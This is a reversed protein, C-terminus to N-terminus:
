QESKRQKEHTICATVCPRSRLARRHGGRGELPPFSRRISDVRRLASAELSWRTPTNRSNRLIGLSPTRRPTHARTKHQHVPRVMRSSNRRPFTRDVTRSSISHHRRHPCKRTVKNTTPKSITPTTSARPRNVTRLTRSSHNQKTTISSYGPLALQPGGLRHFIARSTKRAVDCSSCCSSRSSHSESSPGPSPV